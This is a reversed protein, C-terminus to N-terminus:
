VEKQAQGDNTTEAHQIDGPLLNKRAMGLEEYMRKAHRTQTKM